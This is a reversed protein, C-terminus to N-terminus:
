FKVKLNFGINRTTPYAGGQYGQLNGSSLNEEPDAYPMNKHIIWLNRGILSLEIGKFAPIRSMVSRPLAYTLSVERLKVFSADYVFGAAPAYRYGYAGYNVASVRIDNPKGDEKVGPRIIGGGESLPARLPNGLDNLGATEPYLGTALGYYMDLSFIDGGQRVDVLFGFSLDKYRFTNQVGGIWDPNANGIIENSTASQLYRGNAGVTPQGNTYIYDKGRITGYPQGLAANLSVGGQFTALQLNDIKNGSEDTYLEKVLNRNRTWNVNINWSFDKTKVPVAFLSVEWGQNQVDGANIYRRTYGTSSSIAIPLIQNITNTRYYSVDFGLRSNLFAMELGIEKSKTREPKLSGNNKTGPLSFLPSTGFPAPKDYTDYLSLPPADNGVEAYNARFKGYSLWSPQWMKSFVWGLSVSPYYYTNNDEPLTSSVDRRIAGELFLMDRYGLSANAFLGDVEVERLSETPANIPNLSNSLAYFRPVVLGGNTSAYISETKTKRINGGVLGKLTLDNTIDKNFNLMLDYNFERFSRNYRSYQSPDISGKAIREEQLEDYADLSIRGMVDLWSTIKYNLMVNGFYRYRNDNQYNEFRTWYPNDWYIPVLDTPDAWNWTVNQKTRDYAAKQEALDVNIPWWQRFNTMLNKSDYGTGYRGRGDIKSFNINATATLKPTINYAAGFNVLDKVLQSNPLIGKETNKTYGLKFWGRDNGGDVTVNTSTTLANQFIYFPDNVAGVWPKAKGFNPSSPDFADWQYVMKNPDFPAGYSADESTPSVLDDVGDGNVDRSLFYGSDDEYYQGYGQGYEKQYKAFTSRDVTGVTLGSNVTVGLGKKGKKTTIMVVGNAARSGYLATAAAGKLVNISEIDDPNIDAAANGYDYGGRGTQQNGSNTNSNDFPVGDIVFLAQNTGTLSKSGRIVINTSGGMSNNRQIQVGSVKGSLSNVFNADRAAAIAEGDVKQAAYGLENKSRKVGLATVVVEKLNNQPQLSLSLVTQDGLKIEYTEYSAASVELVAGPEADIKFNGNQDAAVGKTSGKVKVSAFPIPSGKEDRVQGTITRAQGYALAGSLLLAFLISSTKRM